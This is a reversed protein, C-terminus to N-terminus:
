SGWRINPDKVQYSDGDYGLFAYQFPKQVPVRTVSVDVPPLHKALPNRRAPGANPGARSRLRQQREAQQGQQAQQSQRLPLPARKGVMALCVILFLAALVTNILRSDPRPKRAFIPM